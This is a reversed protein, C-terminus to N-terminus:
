PGDLAGTSSDYELVGPRYQHDRAGLGPDEQKLRGIGQSTFVEKEMTSVLFGLNPFTISSAWLSMALPQHPWSILVLEAWDARSM